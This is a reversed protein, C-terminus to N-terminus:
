RGRGHIVSTTLASTATAACAASLGSLAAFITSGIINVHLISGPLRNSWPIVGDYLRSSINGALLIEGMRIFYVLVVLTFGTTNDWIIMQIAYLNGDMALYMYLIGTIGLAFAIHVGTIMLIIIIPLLIVAVTYDM